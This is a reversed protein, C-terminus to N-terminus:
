AHAAAAHEAGPAVSARVELEPPALIAKKVKCGDAARVVAARYKEPFAPPLVVEISVKALRHTAEDFDNHQVVRVGDTPIGRAQCFGLV